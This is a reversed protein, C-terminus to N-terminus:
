WTIEIRHPIKGKNKDHPEIYKMKLGAERTLKGVHRLFAERFPEDGRPIDVTIGNEELSDAVQLLSKKWELFLKEAEKEAVFTAERVIREIAAERRKRLEEAFDSLNRPTSM